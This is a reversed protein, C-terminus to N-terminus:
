LKGKRIILALGILLAVGGVSLYVGKKSVKVLTEKAAGNLPAAQQNISLQNDIKPQVNQQVADPTLQGNSNIAQGKANQVDYSLDTGNSSAVQSPGLNRNLIRNM